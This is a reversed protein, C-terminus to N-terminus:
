YGNFLLNIRDLIQKSQSLWQDILNNIASIWVYYPTDQFNKLCNGRIHIRKTEFIFNNIKRMLSTKGSGEEGTIFILSKNKNYTEILNNITTINQITWITKSM